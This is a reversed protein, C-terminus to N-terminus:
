EAEKIRSTQIETGPLEDLNAIFSVYKEQEAMRDKYYGWIVMGAATHKFDMRVHYRKEFLGKEVAYLANGTTDTEVVLCKVQELPGEINSGTLIIKEGVYSVNFFRYNDLSQLLYSKETIVNGSKDLVILHPIFNWYREAANDISSYGAIAINGSESVDLNRFYTYLQQYDFIYTWEIKGERNLFLVVGEFIDNKSKASGCLIYGEKTEVCDFVNLNVLGSTYEWQINGDFDISAFSRYFPENKTDDVYLVKSALLNQDFGLILDYKNPMTIENVLGGSEDFFLAFMQTENYRYPFVLMNNQTVGSFFAFGYSHEKSPLAISKFSEDATNRVLIEMNNTVTNLADIFHKGNQSIIYETFSYDPVEYYSDVKSLPISDKTYAYGHLCSTMLTCLLLALATKKM